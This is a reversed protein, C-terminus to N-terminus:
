LFDVIPANNKSQRSYRELFFVGFAASCRFLGALSSPFVFDIVSIM